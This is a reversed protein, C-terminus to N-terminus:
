VTKPLTKYMSRKVFIEGCNTWKLYSNCLTGNHSRYYQYYTVYKLPKNWGLLLDCKQDLQNCWNLGEDMMCPREDTAPRSLRSQQKECRTKHLVWWFFTMYRLFSSCYFFVHWMKGGDSKCTKAKTNDKQTKNIKRPSVQDTVKVRSTSLPGLWTQM